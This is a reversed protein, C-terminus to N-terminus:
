LFIPYLYYTSPDLRQTEAREVLSKLPSRYDVLASKFILVAGEKQIEELLVSERGEEVHLILNTGSAHGSRIIDSLLPMEDPFNIRKDSIHIWAGARGLEYLGSELDGHHYYVCYCQGRQCADALDTVESLDRETHKNSLYIYMGDTGLEKLASLDPSSDEKSGFAGSQLYALLSNGKRCGQQINKLDEGSKGSESNTYIDAGEAALWELQVLSLRGSDVLRFRSDGRKRRFIKVADLLLSFDYLDDRVTIVPDEKVSSLFAFSKEPTAVEQNDKIDQDM